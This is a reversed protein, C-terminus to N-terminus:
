AAHVMSPSSEHLGDVRGYRIDDCGRGLADIREQGVITGPMRM